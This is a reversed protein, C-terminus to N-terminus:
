ETTVTIAAIEISGTISEAHPGCRSAPTPAGSPSGVYHRFGLRAQSRPRTCDDVVSDERNRGCQYNENDVRAADTKSYAFNLGSRKSRATGRVLVASGEVRHNGAPTREGISIDRGSRALGSAQSNM